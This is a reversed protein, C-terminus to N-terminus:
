ISPQQLYDHTPFFLYSEYNSKSDSLQYFPYTCENIINYNYYKTNCIPSYKTGCFNDELFTVQTIYEFM